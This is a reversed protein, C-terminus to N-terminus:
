PTEWDYHIPYDLDIEWVWQQGTSALYQVIVVHVTGEEPIWDPRRLVLVSTYGVHPEESGDAYVITYEDKRMVAEFADAPVHQGKYSVDVSVALPDKVADPDNVVYRLQDTEEWPTVYFSDPPIDESWTATPRMYNFGFGLEDDPDRIITLRDEGDGTENEYWADVTMEFEPWGGNAEYADMNNMYATSTSLMPLEFSGSGIEEESLYYEYFPQDLTKDRVTIRVSHLAGTNSLDIQGHHEHSFHFFAVQIVPKKGLPTSEPAPEPTPVPTEPLAATEEPAPAPAATVAPPTEVPRVVPSPPATTSGSFMLGTLVVAAASFLLRRLRRKRRPREPASEARQGPPTHEQEPEPQPYDEGPPPSHEAGPDPPRYEAEEAPAGYEEPPSLLEEPAPTEYDKRDM